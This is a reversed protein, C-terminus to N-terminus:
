RKTDKKDKSRFALVIPSGTFEINERLRHELYRKYSDKLLKDDNVFLLFTPPAVDVQTGYYIKLRKNKLPPPPNLTYAEMLLQNIVSTQIRRSRNECIKVVWEFIKDLRQGTKASVFLVPAFRAHPLEAFIEKEFDKTSRTTKSDILDWKNVVILLGKGYENSTEVIRKDQDTVGETADLVLVSVDSRKLSRIARDVSFLEVGYAVKAKKRIGATDVVTFRQDQWLVETDIADRTTGPVDSVINRESGLLKNVLSSKGVNPRGVFAMQLSTLTEPHTTVADADLTKFTELVKDLLDGVGVTGHMASVPHPEGLGLGYFEATNGLLERTDVKNVAIWTPKKLPRILRAIEEDWAAIGTLADVVFIIVDAEELAVVVQENVKGAFLEEEGPALGGTDIVTFRNGLWEADYYARDRTVGPLDDVIAQRSGVIRNVLTSKGVNPRGIIAVIPQRM